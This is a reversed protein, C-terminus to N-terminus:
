FDFFNSKAHSKCAFFYHFNSRTEKKKKKDILLFLQSMAECRLHLTGLYNRTNPKAAPQLEDTCSASRFRKVSLPVRAIYISHSRAYALFTKKKKVYDKAFPYFKM